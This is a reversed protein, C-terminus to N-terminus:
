AFRVVGALYVHGALGEYLFTRLMRGTEADWLFVGSDRSGAILKKGDTTFAVSWIQDSNDRSAPLSKLRRATQIDWIEATGNFRALALKKGDPSFAVATVFDSDDDRSAIVGNREDRGGFQRRVSGDGTNVLVAVKEDNAAEGIM